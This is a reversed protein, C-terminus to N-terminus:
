GVAQAFTSDFDINDSGSWEHLRYGALRGNPEVM